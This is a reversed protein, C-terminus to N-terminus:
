QKGNPSQTDKVAVKARAPASSNGADDIVLNDACGGLMFTLVASLIIAIHIWFQNSPKPM